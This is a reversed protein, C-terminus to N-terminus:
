DPTGPTTIVTDRKVFARPCLRKWEALLRDPVDSRVGYMPSGRYRRGSTELHLMLKKMFQHKREADSEDDDYSAGWFHCTLEVRRVDDTSLRRTRGAVTRLLLGDGTVHIEGLRTLDWLSWAAILVVVVAAIGAVTYGLVLEGTRTTLIGLAVAGLLGLGWALRRLGDRRKNEVTWLAGEPMPM